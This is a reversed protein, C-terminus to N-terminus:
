PRLFAGGTRINLYFIVPWFTAFLSGGIFGSVMNGRILKALFGSLFAGLGFTPLFNCAVGVAFGRAAQENSGRLRLFRSLAAIASRRTRSIASM